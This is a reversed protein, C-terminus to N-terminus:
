VMLFHPLIRNDVVLAHESFSKLSHRLSGARDGIGVGLLLVSLGPELLMRWGAREVLLCM